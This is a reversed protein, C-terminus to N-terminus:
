REALQEVAAAAEAAGCGSGVLKGDLEHQAVEGAADLGCGDFGDLELPLDVGV